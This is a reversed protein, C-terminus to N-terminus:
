LMLDSIQLNLVSGDSMHVFIAARNEDVQDNCLTKAEGKDGLPAANWRAFQDGLPFEQVKGLAAVNRDRKRVMMNMM